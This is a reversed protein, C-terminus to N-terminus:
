RCPNWRGAAPSQICRPRWGRFATRPRSTYRGNISWGLDPL